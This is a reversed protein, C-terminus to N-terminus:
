RSVPLTLVVIVQGAPVRNNQHLRILQTHPFILRAISQARLKALQPALLHDETRTMGVTIEVQHKPSLNLHAIMQVLRQQELTPLQTAKGRFAFQITHSSLARQTQPLKAPLPQATPSPIAQVDNILHKNLTPTIVTFFTNLWPLFLSMSALALTGILVGKYILFAIGTKLM